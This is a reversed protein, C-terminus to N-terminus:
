AEKAPKGALRAMNFISDNVLKMEYQTENPYAYYVHHSEGNDSKDKSVYKSEWAFSRELIDMLTIADEKSVAVDSWGIRVVVM